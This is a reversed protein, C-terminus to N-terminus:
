DQQKNAEVIDRAEAEANLAVTTWYHWEPEERVLDMYDPVNM